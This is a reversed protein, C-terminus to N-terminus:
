RVNSWTVGSDRSELLGGNGLVAFAHGQGDLTFLVQGPADALRPHDLPRWTSGADVSRFTSGTRGDGTGVLLVGGNPSAAVSSVVSSGPSPVPTWNWIAATPDASYLGGTTGAWVKGDSSGMALVPHPPAVQDTWTLGGDFSVKTTGQWHGALRGEGGHLATLAHFDVQGKLSRQEWTEGGDTSRRLGLHVGGFARPDDPHGSSYFVGSAEPDKTFGMYDFREAGAYSWTWDSGERVGRALGHHTALYVTDTAGDYAIGHVHSIALESGPAACGALLIAFALFASREM